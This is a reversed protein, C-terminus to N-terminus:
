ALEEGQLIRLAEQLSVIEEKRRAVRDAYSLGSDVCSPKLKEYYDLAATLEEQTTELDKTRFGLNNEAERKKLNKHHKEKLKAAKDEKSDAILTDYERQATSEASTTDAELRGFDSAIVELMGVVGGKADQNGKYPEDFTEPVDAAPTQQFLATSSAAKAYFDNLVKLAQSVAAQAEKADAITETNKAKETQREATAKVMTADLEAIQDSLESMDKGMKTAISTLEDIQAQLSEAQATLEDRTQKNTSLESDCFDKHDAEDSAQEMLKVILDKIMKKVKAFPDEAVRQAIVSLLQSKASAARDTLFSVARQQQPSMLGSRLQALATHHVVQTLAAGGRFSHKEAKGAVSPSSMIEIAKAIAEIEEARLKQRTEYDSSKQQALSTLETLYKTDEDLMTKTDTLDAKGKSADGLRNAKMATKEDRQQTAEEISDHLAQMNMEYSHKKNMEEKEVASLEKFFKKKLKELMAIVGGSQSEYANAEPALSVAQAVAGSQLYSELVRKAHEPFRHSKEALSGLSILAAQPVDASRSKLTAIAREIADLSETYDKQVVKFDAREKERVGTQAKEDAEWGNISAELEKVERGLQAADAEAKDIDATLQEIDQNAKEIDKKKDASTMEVFRKFKAFRVEEDQKEKKGKEMMETLMQIVKQIPTVTSGARLQYDGSAEGPILCFVLVLTGLQM